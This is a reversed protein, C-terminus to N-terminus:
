RRGKGSDNLFDSVSNAIHEVERKEMGSFIPLSVIKESLKETVPFEGRKGKLYSFAQQIYLPVPYHIGTEIGRKSLYDIFSQRDDVNVVFLHYSHLNGQATEPLLIGNKRFLNTILDSASARRSANWDELHPLKVNLIAAQLGDLRRNSGLEDHHYKKTQGYNRLHKIKEILAKDKSVVAGADGFAGLNKGPYFSFAAADGSTGPHCGNQRSGHAQCADEVLALNFKDAVKRLAGMDAQQGYLHVPIIAVTKANIKSQVQSVDMLHTRPNVDVFVPSAGTAAISSGTAFFTNAVTIVEDGKGIDGARLILELADTGSSIGACNESGSLGNYKAFADEFSEVEHGLIFSNNDIVRKIARNIERKIPLHIRSLDNFPIKM